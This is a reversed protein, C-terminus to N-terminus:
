SWLTDALHIDQKVHLRSYALMSTKQCIEGENGDAEPTTESNQDWCPVCIPRLPM